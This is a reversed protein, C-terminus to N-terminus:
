KDLKKMKTDKKKAWFLKEMLEKIEDGLVNAKEDDEEAYMLQFSIEVLIIKLEEENFIQNEAIVRQLKILPKKGDSVTTEDTEEITHFRVLDGNETLFIHMRTEVDAKMTTECSMLGRCFCIGCLPTGNNKQFNEREQYEFGEGSAVKYIPEFTLKSKALEIKEKLLNSVTGKIQQLTVV